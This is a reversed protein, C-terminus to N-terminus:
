DQILLWSLVLPNWDGEDALHETLHIRLKAGNFDAFYNLTQAQACVALSFTIAACAVALGLTFQLKSSKM